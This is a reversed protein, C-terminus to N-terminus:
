RRSRMSLAQRWHEAAQGMDHGLFEFFQSTTRLRDGTPTDAGFIGAGHRTIDAFIRISRASAAWTHYWVDVDVFYRVRRAERERAVMGREELWKAAHSITAPSVHLQRALETATLSGAEGLFLAAFVRAAMPAMGGEIMMAVFQEEFERATRVDRDDTTHPVGAQPARKRRRARWNTAHQARAARYGHPGGNRAIERTVTSRSRGLRRAIEAYTLGAALGEAIRRRDEATLRGGPM